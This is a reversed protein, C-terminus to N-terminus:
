AAGARKFFKFAHEGPVQEHGNGKRHHVEFIFALWDPHFAVEVFTGVEGGSGVEEAPCRDVGRLGVEMAGFEEGVDHEFLEEGSLM